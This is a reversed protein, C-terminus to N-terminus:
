YLHLRSYAQYVKPEHANEYIAAAIGCFFLDFTYGSSSDCRPWTKGCLRGNARTSFMRAARARRAKNWHNQWEEDHHSQPQETPHLAAM